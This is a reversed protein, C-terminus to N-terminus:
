PKSWIKKLFLVKEFLNQFNWSEIKFFLFTKNRFFIHDLGYDRFLGLYNWSGVSPTQQVLKWHHIQGLKSHVALNSLEERLEKERSFQDPLKIKEPPLKVGHPLITQMKFFAIQNHRGFCTFQFNHLSHTCSIFKRRVMKTEHILLLLFMGYSM